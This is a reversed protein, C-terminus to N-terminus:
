LLNPAITNFNIPAFVFCQGWTGSTEDMVLYSLETESHVLDLSQFQLGRSTRM